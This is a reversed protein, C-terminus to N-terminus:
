RHNKSLLHPSTGVYQVQKAALCRKLETHTVIQGPNHELEASIRQSEAIVTQRQQQRRYWATITEHLALYLEYDILAALPRGAPATLIAPQDTVPQYM